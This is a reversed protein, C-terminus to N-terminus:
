STGSARWTRGLDAFHKRLAATTHQPLAWARRAVDGMASGIQLYHEALRREDPALRLRDFQIM